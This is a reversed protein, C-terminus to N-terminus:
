YLRAMVHAFALWPATDMIALRILNSAVLVAGGWLWVRHPRGENVSDFVIGAAVVILAGYLSAVAAACGVRVLLALWGSFVTGHAVLLSAIKPTGPPPDFWHPLFCSRALGIFAILAISIGMATYFVRETQLRAIREAKGAM